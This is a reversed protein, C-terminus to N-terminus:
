LPTDIGFALFIGKIISLVLGLCCAGFLIWLLAMWGVVANAIDEDNINKM